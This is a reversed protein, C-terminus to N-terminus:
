LLRFFFLLALVSMALWAASNWRIIKAGDLPYLPILNILAVMASARSLFAALPSRVLMLALCIAINILPGSAALRGEAARSLVGGAVAVYGPAIIKFPMYPIASVLTLLLGTRSIRYRAELGMARAALKHALEHSLYVAVSTLLALTVAAFTYSYLFAAAVALTAVALDRAEKSTVLPTRFAVVTREFRREYAATERELQDPSKARHLGSCDHNEPLHHRVCFVGGCYKCKFPLGEIEEGCYECRPVRLSARPPKLTKQERHFSSEM